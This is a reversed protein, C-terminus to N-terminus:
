NLTLLFKNFAVGDESTQFRIEKRWPVSITCNFLEVTEQSPTCPSVTLPLAFQKFRQTNCIFPASWTLFDGTLGVIKECTGENVAEILVQATGSAMLFKTEISPGTDRSSSGSSLNDTLGTPTISFGGRSVLIRPKSQIAIKNFNNITDIELQSKKEDVDWKLDVPAYTGFLYRLPKVIVSALFAPSFSM